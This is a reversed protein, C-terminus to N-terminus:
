GPLRGVAARAGQAWLVEAAATVPARLRSAIAPPFVETVGLLAAVKGAPTAASDSAARLRTSLPDKVEIPQGAEDLGGVYRMWGAVGLCLGPASRGADCAAVLTGLIRQPLKQSGDMAIQWTRHRIAPNAYRTALADAYDTLRVGPPATVAPMIEAWLRRVFAAYAPDAM